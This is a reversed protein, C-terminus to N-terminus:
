NSTIYLKLIESRFEVDNLDKLQKYIKRNERIKLMFKFLNIYFKYKNIKQNIVDYLYLFYFKYIINKDISKDNIFYNSYLKDQMIKDMLKESPKSSCLGYEKLHKLIKDYKEDSNLFNNNLVYKKIDKMELLLHENKQLRESIKEESNLINKIQKDYQILLVKLELATLFTMNNESIIMDHFKNLLPNISMKDYIAKTDDFSLLRYAASANIQGNNFNNLIENKSNTKIIEYLFKFGEVNNLIILKDKASM